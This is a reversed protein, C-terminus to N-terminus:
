RVEVPPGAHVEADHEHAEREAQAMDVCLAGFACECTLCEYFYLPPKDGLWTAHVVITHTTTM